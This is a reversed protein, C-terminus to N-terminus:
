FIISLGIKHNNGLESFSLWVYDLSYSIDGTKFLIGGGANFGNYLREEFSFNGGVRLSLILNSIFHIYEIGGKILLSESLNYGFDASIRIKNGITFCNLFQTYSGIEFSIPTINGNFSTGLNKFIIGVGAKNWLFEGRNSLFDEENIILDYIGGIDLSFGFNSYDSGLSEGSIKLAIGLNLNKAFESYVIKEFDFGYGIGLLYNFGSVEKGEGDYFGSSNEKQEIVNGSNLYKLVIGLSDTENLNQGYYISDYFVDQLYFDHIFLIQKGVITKLGAPNYDMSEVDNCAAIYAGGVGQAKIGAPIKLLDISTTGIGAYTFFYLLFYFLVLIFFKKM